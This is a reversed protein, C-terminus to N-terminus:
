RWVAPLLTWEAPWDGLLRPDSITSWETAHSGPDRQATQILYHAGPSPSYDFGHEKREEMEVVVSGPEADFREEITLWGWPTQKYVAWYNAGAPHQWSIRATRPSAWELNVQEPAPPLLLALILLLRLM